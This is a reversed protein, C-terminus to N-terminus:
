IHSIYKIIRQKKLYLRRLGRRTVLNHTIGYDIRTIGVTHDPYGVNAVYQDRLYEVGSVWRFGAKAYFAEAERFEDVNNVVFYTGLLSNM